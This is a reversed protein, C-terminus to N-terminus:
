NHMIVHLYGYNILMVSGPACVCDYAINIAIVLFVNYPEFNDIKITNM